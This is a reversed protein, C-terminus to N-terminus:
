ASAIPAACVIFHEYLAESFCEYIGESLIEVGALLLALLIRKLVIQVFCSFNM